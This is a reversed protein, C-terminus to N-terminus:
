GPRDLVVVVELVRPGHVGEVRQLEIDSTASPGSVWTQPRGPQSGRAPDLVRVADPVGSVVLSAPVVVVHVDPVLTLARRGQGPGHDLVITGTEAVAVACTTVVADLADLQAATLPPVDGVAEIGKPLWAPDLGDPVAVRMAGRRRLAAGVAEAVDGTDCHTVTARYDRVREAFRELDGPGAPGRYRREVVGIPPRSGPPRAAAIRDLIVRRADTV